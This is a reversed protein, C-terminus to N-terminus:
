RRRPRLRSSLFSTRADSVQARGGPHSSQIAELSKLGSSTNVLVIRLGQALQGNAALVQLGALASASAPEVFFGERALDRQATMIAEDDAQAVMGNSARLAALSIYSNVSGGIGRAVTPTRPVKVIPREPNGMARVLPGGTPVCAVMRPAVYARGLRVLEDFGKWIGFLGEGYATPVSVLDPEADLSEAIEYAITKYGEHGFAGNTPIDTYNSAPYWGHERMGREMVEWRKDPETVILRAGYAQILTRTGDPIGPYTLAMCDLGARAAYAAISAGHNGSTSVVIASAGFEVAKSVTVAANRDKFTWTPNGSEDKIWVQEANLEAALRPLPILPTGGEGLTVEHRSRLTPLLRRYRWIGEAPESLPADGLDQSLREYDYTPTLGSAFTASRCTPCGASM